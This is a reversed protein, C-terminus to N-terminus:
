FLSDSNGSRTLFVKPTEIDPQGINLTISKLGRAEAAVQYSQFKRMPFLRVKSDQQVIEDYYTDGKDDSM